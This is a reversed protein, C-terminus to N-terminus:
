CIRKEMELMEWDIFDSEVEHSHRNKIKGSDWMNEFEQFSVGYKEGFNLIQNNYKELQNEIGSLLIDNLKVDVVQKGFSEQLAKYLKSDIKLNHTM